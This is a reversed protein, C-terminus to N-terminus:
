MFIMHVQDVHMWVERMRVAVFWVAINLVLPMLYRTLTYYYPYVHDTPILELVKTGQQCFALDSLGAGHAGVVIAAEAFDFPPNEQKAPYYIEFNFKRLINEIVEENIVNRSCGTRSIYLRRRPSPLETLFENKLFTPLWKPYNRRLGPFSPALLKEVYMMGQNDNAWICKNSPIGLQTFLRQANRSPPKPCFFYDIESIRFGARKFLELRSICDLLFHGYNGVAFDSALTLCIGKLYTNTKLYRPIRKAENVNQSYWSHDPLFYGEKSFIWGQQGYLRACELELVGAEPFESDLRRQLDAVYSGYFIPPLHGTPVKEFVKHWKADFKEAYLPSSLWKYSKAYFVSDKVRSKVRRELDLIKM